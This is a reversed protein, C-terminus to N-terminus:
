PAAPEEVVPAQFEIEFEKIPSQFRIDKGQWDVSFNFDFPVDIEGMDLALGAIGLIAVILTFVKAARVMDAAPAVFAVAVLVILALWLIPEGIAPLAVLGATAVILWAFKPYKRWLLAAVVLLLAAAILSFINLDVEKDRGILRSSSFKEDTWTRLQSSCCLGRM